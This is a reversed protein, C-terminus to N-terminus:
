LELARFVEALDTGRVRFGDITVTDLIERLLPDPVTGGSLMLAVGSPIASISQLGAHGTMRTKIAAAADESCSIEVCCGARALLDHASEVVLLSGARLVAVSDCLASIEDLYNSSVIISTGEERLQRLHAWIVHRAEADVGLTPEDIVLLSPSHLLARGITLRRRMGGSLSGCPSNARDTLGIVDIVEKIRRKSHPVNYLSAAFALNEVPTLEDYLAVEQLVVGIKGRVSQLGAPLKEGLVTIQGQSPTRLGVILNLLTTKGAGNPGLVGTIKRQDIQLSINDLITRGGIRCSVVELTVAPLSSSNPTPMM